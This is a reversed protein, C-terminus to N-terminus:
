NEVAKHVAVVSGCGTCEWIINGPMLKPKSETGGCKWCKETGTLWPQIKKWWGGLRVAAYIVWVLCIGLAVALGIFINGFIYESAFVAVFSLVIAAFAAVIETITLKKREM